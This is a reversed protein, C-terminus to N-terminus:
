TKEVQNVKFFLEYPLIVKFWAGRVCASACLAFLKAKGYTDHVQPAHPKAHPMLCSFVSFFNNKKM